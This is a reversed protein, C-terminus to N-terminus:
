SCCKREDTSMVFFMHLFFLFFHYAFFIHVRMNTLDVSIRIPANILSSSHVLQDRRPAVTLKVLVDKGCFVSVNLRPCEFPVCACESSRTLKSWKVSRLVRFILIFFVRLARLPLIAVKKMKWCKRKDANEHHFSLYVASEFDGMDLRQVSCLHIKLSLIKIPTSGTIDHKWRGTHGLFCKM